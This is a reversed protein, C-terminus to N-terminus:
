ILLPMNPFICINSSREKSHALPVHIKSVLCDGSIDLSTNLVSTQAFFHWRNDIALTSM